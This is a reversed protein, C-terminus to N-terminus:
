RASVRTAPGSGTIRFMSPFLKVFDLFLLNRKAEKFGDEQNLQRAAVTLAVPGSRNLSTKLMEAYPQLTPKLRDRVRTAPQPPAAESSGAPIVSVQKIQHTQGQTDKVLGAETSQVTRIPGFKPTFSREFKGKPLPARFKNTEELAETKQKNREHNNEIAQASEQYLLFKVTDPVKGPEEGMNHGHETSNYSEEIRKIETDWRAKNKNTLVKALRSRINFITRDVVALANRDGTAKLRSAIGRNDLLKEVKQKWENGQDHSIVKLDGARDLITKLGREVVDPTKNTIPKLYAKRTFVNVLIIINKYPGSKMAKMDILDMQAEGEDRPGTEGQSPKRQQFIQQDGKRKVFDQVVARNVQLGEKLAKTYLQKATIGINEDYLRQLQDMQYLIPLFSV